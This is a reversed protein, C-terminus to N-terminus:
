TDEYYEVKNSSWSQQMQKLFCFLRLIVKCGWIKNTALEENGKQLICIRHPDGYQKELLMKANQYGLHTPQQVCPKVLERAKGDAYKILRILRGTPDEIRDEVVEKFISMFYQYNIPHGDFKEIDVQSATERQLLKCIMETNCDNEESYRGSVDGVNYGQSENVEQWNDKSAINLDISPNNMQDISSFDPDRM